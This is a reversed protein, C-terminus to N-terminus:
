SFVFGSLIFHFSIWSGTAGAAREIAVQQLFFCGEGGEAGFFSLFFSSILWVVKGRWGLGLGALEAWGRLPFAFLVFCSWFFVIVSVSDFSGSQSSVVSCLMVRGREGGGEGGRGKIWGDM